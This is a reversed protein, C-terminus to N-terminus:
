TCFVEGSENRELLATFESVSCTYLERLVKETDARSIDIFTRFINKKFFPGLYPRRKLISTDVCWKDKTLSSIFIAPESADTSKFVLMKMASEAKENQWNFKRFSAIAEDINEPQSPIGQDIEEDFYLCFIDDM